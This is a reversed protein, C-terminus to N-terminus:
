DKVTTNQLALAASNDNTNDTHFAANMDTTHETYKPNESLIEIFENAKTKGISNLKNYIKLLHIEQNGLNSDNTVQKKTDEVLDDLTYGLCHVIKKIIELKPDKTRGCFLKEITTQPIGTKESISKYTENSNKKFRRLNDLWEM